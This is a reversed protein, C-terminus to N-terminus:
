CLGQSIATMAAQTRNSVNLKSCISRVHMKVTIETVNLARAIDKNPSGACLGKLVELEKPSLLSSSKKKGDRLLGSTLSSPLYVEGSLIFRIANGLSRVSITKPIFGSIGLELARVVVEHRALGSFLVVKGGANLALVQEIGTLGNMGPMDLDLLIVDFPGNDRIQAQIEAMDHAKSIAFGGEDALYSEVLDVLLAHDDAIMVRALGAKTETLSLRADM